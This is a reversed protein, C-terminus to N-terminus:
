AWVEKLYHNTIAVLLFARAGKRGDHFRGSRM